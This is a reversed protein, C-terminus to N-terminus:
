LRFAVSADGELSTSASLQVGVRRSEWGLALTTAFSSLQRLPVDFVTALALGLPLAVAAAPRLSVNGTGPFYAVDAELRMRSIPLQRAVIGAVLDMGEKGEGIGSVRFATALTNSLELYTALGASARTRSQTLRSTASLGIALASGLRLGLAAHAEPNETGLSYEGGAGLSVMSFPSAWLAEAGTIPGGALIGYRAYAQALSGREWATAPNARVVSSIAPDAVGTGVSWGDARAVSGGVLALALIALCVSVRKMM